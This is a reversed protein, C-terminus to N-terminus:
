EGARGSETADAAMTVRDVFEKLAQKSTWRRGGLLITELRVGRIGPNMWSRVTRPSPRGPINKPADPISLLEDKEFDISM